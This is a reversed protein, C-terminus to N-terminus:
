AGKREERHPQFGLHGTQGRGHQTPTSCWWWSLRIPYFGSSLPVLVLLAIVIGVIYQGWASIYGVVLHPSANRWIKNIGPLAHGMMLAAFVVSILYAPMLKWLKFMEEMETEISFYRAIEGGAVQPGLLLAVIGGLVAAPIHLKQIFPVLYRLVAGVLIFLSAAIFAVLVFGISYSPAETM